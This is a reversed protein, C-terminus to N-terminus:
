GNGGKLGQGSRSFGPKSRELCCRIGMTRTALTPLEWSALSELGPLRPFRSECIMRM